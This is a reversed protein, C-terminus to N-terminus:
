VHRLTKSQTVSEQAADDFWLLGASVPASPVRHDWQCWPFRKYWKFVFTSLVYLHVLSFLWHSGDISQSPNSPSWYMLDKDCRHLTWVLCCQLATVRVWLQSRQTESIQNWNCDWLHRQRLWWLRLKKKTFRLRKLSCALNKWWATQQQQDKRKWLAERDRGTQRHTQTDRRWSWWM